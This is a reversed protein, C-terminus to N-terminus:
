ENEERVHEGKEIAGAMRLLIPACPSEGMVEVALAAKLIYSVIDRRETVKGLIIGQEEETM